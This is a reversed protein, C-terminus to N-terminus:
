KYGLQMQGLRPNLAQMAKNASSFEKDGTVQAYWRRLSRQQVPDEMAGGVRCTASEPTALKGDAWSILVGSGDFGFGFLRFPKGNLQEVARLTMGPTLGTPTRWLSNTSHVEVTAPSRLNVTDRWLIQLRRASDHPFLITASQSQGEGLDISEKSVNAAGYRARLQAATLSPPFTSDCDLSLRSSAHQAIAPAALATAAITALM